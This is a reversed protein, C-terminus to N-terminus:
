NNRGFGFLNRVADFLIKIKKVPKAKNNKKEAISMWRRSINKEVFESLTTKLSGVECLGKNEENSPDSFRSSSKGSRCISPWVMMNRDILHSLAALEYSDYLPSGCDWVNLPVKGKGKEEEEEEEDERMEAEKMESNKKLKLKM